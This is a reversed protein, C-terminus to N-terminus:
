PSLVTASSTGRYFYKLTNLNPIESVMDGTVIVAQKYKLPFSFDSMKNIFKNLIFDM